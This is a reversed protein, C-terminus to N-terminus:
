GAPPMTSYPGAPLADVVSTTVATWSATSGVPVPGWKEVTLMRDGILLGTAPDIIIQQVFPRSPEKRSIAVGTRGDLNAQRDALYVGPLEALATYMARRVEAPVLGTTLLGRIKEFVAEEKSASGEAREYLYALLADADRPLKAIEGAYDYQTGGFNGAEAEYLRLTGRNPDSWFEDIMPEANGYNEGPSLWQTGRLWTGSKDEPIYLTVSRPQEYAADQGSFSLAVQNSEVKLFQGPGVVPDTSNITSSAAKHLVEAAEASAGASGFVTTSIVTAVIAAAAVAPIAAWIARRVIPRKRMTIPLAHPVTRIDADEIREFLDAKMREFDSSSPLLESEITPVNM